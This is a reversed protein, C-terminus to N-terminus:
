QNQTTALVFARSHSMWFSAIEVVMGTEFWIIYIGPRQILALATAQKPSNTTSHKMAGRVSKRFIHDSQLLM